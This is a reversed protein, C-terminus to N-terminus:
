SYLPIVNAQRPKLAAMADAHDDEFLHAYISLMTTPKSHGMFRCIDFAPIGAVVCLSAYTHRLSHFKLNPSLKAAPTLRNSRLVAPRFVAKYWVGHRLPALWDLVLRQGADEVSLAALATAQRLVVEEPTQARDSARVGTPKPVSLTMGPFLPSTPDEARPHAALYQRLLETTPGTLPVRRRSGKTKPPLYTREIRLVGPRTPTNLNFRRPV